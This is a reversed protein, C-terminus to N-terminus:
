WGCIFRIMWWYLNERIHKKYHFDERYFTSDITITKVPLWISVFNFGYSVFYICIVKRNSLQSMSEDCVRVLGLKCPSTDYIHLRTVICIIKKIHLSFNPADVNQLFIEGPYWALEICFQTLDRNGKCFLWFVRHTFSIRIPNGWGKTYHKSVIIWWRQDGDL